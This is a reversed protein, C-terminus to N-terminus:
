YEITKIAVLAFLTTVFAFANLTKYRSASSVAAKNSATSNAAKAVAPKTTNSSSTPQTRNATEIYADAASDGLCTVIPEITLNGFSLAQPLVFEVALAVSQPYLDHALVIFGTPLQDSSGLISQFNQLVQAPTVIGTSIKWDATDFTRGGPATTWIIPTLGMALAIYRVRDDIDGYPPRMTNPTVGLVDKIVKKSWGLEAVIEENTLQTLYPHSWTHVSIQHGAEYEYQLMDPRSLVRSGVVFFTSKLKHEDLYKLLTPTDPSPGDDFSAGWTGKKPCSTIDTDRSCGGCTWWCNKDPGAQAMLNANSPNNCGGTATPPIQPVKTMDIQSLWQQVQPSNLPPIRDLTPYSPIDLRTSPLPPGGPFPAQAGATYTAPLATMTSPNMSQQIPPFTLTQIDGAGLSASPSTAPTAMPTPLAPSPAQRPWHNHRESAISFQFLTSCTAMLVVLASSLRPSPLTAVFGNSPSSFMTLFNRQSQISQYIVVGLLLHNRLATESGFEVSDGVPCIPEHTSSIIDLVLGSCLEFRALVMGTALILNASFRRCSSPM